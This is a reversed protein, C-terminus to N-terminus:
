LGQNEFYQLITRYSDNTTFEESARFQIYEIFTNLSHRPMPAKQKSMRSITIETAITAPKMTLLKQGYTAKLYQYCKEVNTTHDKLKEYIEWYEDHFKKIEEETHFSQNIIPMTMSNEGKYHYRYAKQLEEESDKQKKLYYNDKHPKFGVIFRSRITQLPITSTILCHYHLNAAREEVVIVNEQNKQYLQHLLDEPTIDQPKDYHIDMNGINITPCETLFKPTWRFSHILETM